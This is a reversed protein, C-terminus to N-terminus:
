PVKKANSRKSCNFMPGKSTSHIDFNVYISKYCTVTISIHRMSYPIFCFDTRTECTDKTFYCNCAGKFNIQMHKGTDPDVRRALSCRGLIISDTRQLKIMDGAYHITSPVIIPLGSYM